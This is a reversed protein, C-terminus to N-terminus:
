MMDIPDVDVMWRLGETSPLGATVTRVAERMRADDPGQVHLQYRFEGRLKPLPCPAPGLVRTAPAHEDLVGAAASCGPHEITTDGLLPALKKGIEEALARVQNEAAGRVVIRILKAFPPYSLLQRIPLEQQAFGDYDHEVAFRIAAHDPSLSQVLVQGGKEGRGTRGAVQVILQFTREAARFDPLHLATDSNVVGVLTVGPFDLGKAIMQTGLLIRVQGERFAALAAEHSGPRKMTDADMRLCRYGPFRAQVEAELRQTGFGQFRIGEFRCEPCRAPSPMQYECYHCLAMEGQRHHTLALDCSPCRVTHGCSPCQIHTSYGRRNLFLIVQGGEGLAKEMALRLPRSLAGRAMREQTETRLDITGVYPMPRDLIRKPLTVLTYQSTL